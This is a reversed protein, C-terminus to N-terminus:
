RNESLKKTKEETVQERVAKKNIRRIGTRQCSRQKEESEQERL